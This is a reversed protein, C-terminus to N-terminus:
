DGTICERLQLMSAVCKLKNGTLSTPSKTPPRRSLSPQPPIYHVLFSLYFYLSISTNIPSCGFPYNPIPLPCHIYFDKRIEKILLNRNIPVVVISPNPQFLDRFATACSGLPCARGARAAIWLIPAANGGVRKAHAATRLPIQAVMAWQGNGM